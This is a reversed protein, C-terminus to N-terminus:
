EEGHAGGRRDEPRRARLADLPRRDRPIGGPEGLRAADLGAPVVVEPPPRRGLQFREPRRDPVEELDRCGRRVLARERATRHRARRPERASAQVIRLVDEASTVRRRDRDAVCRLETRRRLRAPALQLGRRPADRGGQPGGADTGAVADDRVERVDELCHDREVRTRAQTRDPRAAGGIEAGPADVVTERLDLWADKEGDVPVPVPAAVVVPALDHPGQLLRHRRELPRDHEAVQVGLGRERAERTRRRPVAELGLDVVRRELEGLDREVMRQPHEVAGPRGPERLCDDVPM